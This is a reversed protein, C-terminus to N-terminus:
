IQIQLAETKNPKTRILERIYKEIKDEEKEQLGM